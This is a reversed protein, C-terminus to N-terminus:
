QGRYVLSLILAVSFSPLIQFLLKLPIMGAVSGVRQLVGAENGESFMSYSAGNLPMHPRTIYNLLLKRVVSSM